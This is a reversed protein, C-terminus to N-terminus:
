FYYLRLEHYCLQELEQERSEGLGGERNERTRDWKLTCVANEANVEFLPLKFTIKYAM